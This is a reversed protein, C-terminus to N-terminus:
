RVKVPILIGKAKATQVLLFTCFIDLFRVLSLTALRSPVEGAACCSM